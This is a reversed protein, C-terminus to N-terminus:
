YRRRDPRALELDARPNGNRDLWRPPYNRWASRPVRSLESPVSREGIRDYDGNSRRSTFWHGGDFAYYSGELRFLDFQPRRYGRIGQVRTGRFTAWRPSYGVNVRMSAPGQDMGRGHRDNWDGSDHQWHERPVNSFEAPLDNDDMYRYEGSENRSMYWHDNDRAYYAGGYRFVDYDPREGSPLEEVRTGQINSWHSGSGINIRLTASSGSSMPARRRDQWTSPYNRWHERPISSFENPVARDDIMVFDGQERTSSYWQNDNYLYYTGGYRFVDYQPRESFPLEEVRTGDISTWHPTSGFTVRLTGRVQAHAAATLGLALGLVLLPFLLHSKSRTTLTTEQPMDLERDPGFTPGDLTRTRM